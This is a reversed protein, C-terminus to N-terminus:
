LVFRMVELKGPSRLLSGWSSPSVAPSLPFPLIRRFEGGGWFFCVFGSGKPFSLPKHWAGSAVTLKGDGRSLPSREAGSLPLAASAKRAAPRERERERVGEAWARSAGAGARDGVACDPRVSSKPAPPRVAASATDPDAAGSALSVPLATQPQARLLLRSVLCWLLCARGARGLWVGAPSAALTTELTPAGTDEWSEGSWGSSPQRPWCPEVGFARSGGEGFNRQFSTGSSQLVVCVPQLAAGARSDPALDRAFGRLGRWGGAGGCPSGTEALQWPVPRPPGAPPERCKWGRGRLDAAPSPALSTELPKGKVRLTGKLSVM